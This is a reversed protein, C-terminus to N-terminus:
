SGLEVMSRSPVGLATRAPSQCPTWSRHHLGLFSRHRLIASAEEPVVLSVRLLRMIADVVDDSYMNSLPHVLREKQHSGRPLASLRLLVAGGRERIDTLLVLVSMRTTHGEECM